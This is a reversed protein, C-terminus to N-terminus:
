SNIACGNAASPTANVPFAIFVCSQEKHGIRRRDGYAAENDYRLVCRGHYLLELSYRFASGSRSSSRSRALREPAHPGVAWASFTIELTLRPM